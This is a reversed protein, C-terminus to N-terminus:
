INSIEFFGFTKPNESFYAKKIAEVSLDVIEAIEPNGM